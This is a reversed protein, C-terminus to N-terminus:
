RTASSARCRILILNNWVSTIAEEIEDNLDFERDKLVGKLM